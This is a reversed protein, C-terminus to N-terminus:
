PFLAQILKTAYLCKRFAITGPNYDAYEGNFGCEIAYISNVFDYDEGVIYKYKRM